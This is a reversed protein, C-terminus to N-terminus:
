KRIISYDFAFAASKKFLSILRTLIVSISYIYKSYKYKSLQSFFEDYETPNYQSGKIMKLYDVRIRDPLLENLVEKREKEVLRKNLSSVGTSDFSAVVIDSLYYSANKLILEQIFFKWDSVIKYNEDYKNRLLIVRKILTSPHPISSCFFRLMTLDEICSMTGSNLFYVRGIIFDVDIENKLLESVVNTDYLYDGSNLFLCYEGKAVDIGKNMANYIGKDPESIWYNIREGYGKIVDVSGDVSGGDIIIYEFDTCTQNIVSAITKKLGDRNNFNITIISIKPM